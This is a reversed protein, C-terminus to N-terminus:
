PSSFTFACITMLCHSPANKWLQLKQQPLRVCSVITGWLIMRPLLDPLRGTMALHFFILTFPAFCIKEENRNSDKTSRGVLNLGVLRALWFKPAEKYKCSWVYKWWRDCWGLAHLSSHNGATCVRSLTEYIYFLQVTAGAISAGRGTTRTRAM